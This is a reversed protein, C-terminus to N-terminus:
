TVIKGQTNKLNVLSYELYDISENKYENRKLARAIEKQARYMQGEQLKRVLLNLAGYSSSFLFLISGLLFKRNRKTM